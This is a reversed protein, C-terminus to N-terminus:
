ARGLEVMRGSPGMKSDEGDWMGSGGSRDGTVAPVAVCAALDLFDVPFCEPSSAGLLGLLRWRTCSLPCSAGDM